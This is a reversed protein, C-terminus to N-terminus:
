WELLTVILGLVAAAAAMGLVIWVMIISAHRPVERMSNCKISKYVISVAASLPLLLVYWYDWVPLPSVFPILAWIAPMM